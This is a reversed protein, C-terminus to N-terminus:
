RCLSNEFLTRPAIVHQELFYGYGGMVPKKPKFGWGELFELKCQLMMSELHAKPFGRPIKL